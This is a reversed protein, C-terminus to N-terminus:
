RATTLNHAKSAWMRNRPWAHCGQMLFFLYHCLVPSNEGKIKASRHCNLTSHSIQDTGKVAIVCLGKGTEPQWTDSRTFTRLCSSLRLPLRHANFCFKENKSRQESGDSCGSKILKHNHFHCLFFAWTCIWPLTNRWMFKNLLFSLFWLTLIAAASCAYSQWTVCIWWYLRFM